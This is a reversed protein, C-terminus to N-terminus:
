VGCCRGTENREYKTGQLVTGEKALLMLGDTYEMTCMVKGVTRFDGSGELDEKSPCESYFSLLSLSLFSGKRGERGFKVIIMQGQDLVLKVSQGM